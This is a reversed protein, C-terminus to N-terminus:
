KGSMNRFQRVGLGMGLVYPDPHSLTAILQYAAAIIRATEATFQNQIETTDPSYADNLEPYKVGRAACASEISEIGSSIIQALAQLSSM